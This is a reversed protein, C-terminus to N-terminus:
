IVESRVGRAAFTYSDLTQQRTIGFFCGVDHMKALDILALGQVGQANTEIWTMLYVQDAIKVYDAFQATYAVDKGDVIVHDFKHLHHAYIHRVVAHSSRDYHWDIMLGTMDRTFGHRALPAPQGDQALWGFHFTHVVERPRDGGGVSAHVLTVLGAPLDVVLTCAEMPFTRGRLHHVLFIGSGENLELIQAYEVKAPAGEEQWSLEEPTRIEYILDARDDFRIQLRQGNLRDSFPQRLEGGLGIKPLGEDQGTECIQRVQERSLEVYRFVPRELYM